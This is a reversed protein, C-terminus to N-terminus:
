PTRACCGEAGLRSEADFVLGMLGFMGPMTMGSAFGEFCAVFFSGVLFDEAAAGVFFFSASAAGARAACVAAEDAGASLEILMGLTSIFPMIVDGIFGIGPIGIPSEACARSMFRLVGLIRSEVDVGM